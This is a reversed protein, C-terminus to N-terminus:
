PWIINCTNLNPLLHTPYVCFLPAIPAHITEGPVEHTDSGSGNSSFETGNNHTEGQCHTPFLPLVM